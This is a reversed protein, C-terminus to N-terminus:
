YRNPDVDDTDRVADHESWSRASEARKRDRLLRPIGQSTDPIGREIVNVPPPSPRAIPSGPLSDGLATCPLAFSGLLLAGFLKGASTM